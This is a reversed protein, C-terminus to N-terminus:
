IEGHNSQQTNINSEIVELQDEMEMLKISQKLDDNSKQYKNVEQTLYKVEVKM